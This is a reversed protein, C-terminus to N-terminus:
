AVTADNNTCIIFFKGPERNGFARRSVGRNIFFPRKKAARKREELEERKSEFRSLESFSQDHPPISLDKSLTQNWWFEAISLGGMTIALIGGLIYMLWDNM